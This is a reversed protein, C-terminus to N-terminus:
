WGPRREARDPAGSRRPPRRPVRRPTSPPRPRSGHRPRRRTNRDLLVPTAMIAAATGFGAVTVLLPWSSWRPPGAGARRFTPAPGLGTPPTSVVTSAVTSTVTFPAPTSTASAAATTPVAAATSTTVAKTTTVPATTAVATTPPVTTPPVTTPPVTTPPVTTTTTPTLTIPPLLQARAPGALTVGGALSLGLTLTPWAWQPGRCPPRVPSWALLGLSAGATAAARRSQLRALARGAAGGSVVSAARGTATLHHQGLRGAGGAPRRRLAAILAAFAAPLRLVIRGVSRGTTRSEGANGPRRRSSLQPAVPATATAAPAALVLSLPGVISGGRWTGRLLLGVAAFTAIWTARRSAWALKMPQDPM